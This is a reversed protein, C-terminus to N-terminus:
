DNRSALEICDVPCPPLCLECGTCHIAIVTHMMQPVGAIADVPCVRSCLNCGICLNEDIWAVQDLSAQGLDERLKKTPLGMINALERITETGGPPCRNIPVSGSAIAEAYARCGAYGCQGCQIRPLLQELQDVIPESEPPFFRNGIVLLAALLIVLGALFVTGILM